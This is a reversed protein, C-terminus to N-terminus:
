EKNLSEEKYANQDMLQNFDSDDISVENMAPTWLNQQQPVYKNNSTREEYIQEALKNAEEYVLSLLLSNTGDKITKTGFPVPNHQKYTSM